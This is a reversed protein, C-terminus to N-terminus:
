FQHMKNNSNEVRNLILFKVCMGVLGREDRKNKIKRSFAKM